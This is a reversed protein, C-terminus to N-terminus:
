ATADVPTVLMAANAQPFFHRVSHITDRHLSPKRNVHDRSLEDVFLATCTAGIRRGFGIESDEVKM